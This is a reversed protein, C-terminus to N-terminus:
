QCRFMNSLFEQEAGAPVASTNIVTLSCTERWFYGRRIEVSFLVARTINKNTEALSLIARKGGVLTPFSIIQGYEFSPDQDRKVSSQAIGFANKVKEQCPGINNLEAALCVPIEATFSVSSLFLGFMVLIVTKMKNEKIKISPQPSSHRQSHTLSRILLTPLSLLPSTKAIKSNKM